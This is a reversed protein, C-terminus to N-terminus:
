RTAEFPAVRIERAVSRGIAFEGGKACRIHLPGGFAARRLVSIRDGKAIGVSEIWHTTDHDLNIETVVFDIALPAQDLPLGERSSM